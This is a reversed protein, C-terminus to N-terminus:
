DGLRGPASSSSESSGDKPPTLQYREMLFNQAAPSIREFLDSGLLWAFRDKKDKARKSAFVSQARWFPDNRASNPRRLGLVREEWDTSNRGFGGVGAAQTKFLIPLLLASFLIPIITTLVSRTRFRM